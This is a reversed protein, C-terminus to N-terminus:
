EHIKREDRLAGIMVTIQVFRILAMLAIVAILVFSGLNRGQNRSMGFLTYSILPKGSFRIYMAMLLTFILLYLHPKRREKLSQIKDEKSTYLEFPKGDNRKGLIVLERNLMGKSTAFKGKKTGYPRYKIRGISLQGINIPKEYYTINMEKLFSEYQLRESNSKNGIYDVVYQYEGPHCQEFEYFLRRAKSLKWGLQSQRNLWMEQGEIPNLFVRFKRVM